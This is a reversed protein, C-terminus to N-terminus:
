FYHSDNKKGKNKLFEGMGLIGQVNKMRFM